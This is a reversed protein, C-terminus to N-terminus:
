ARILMTYIGVAARTSPRSCTKPPRLDQGSTGRSNPQPQEGAAERDM